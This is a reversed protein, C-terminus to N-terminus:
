VLRQTMGLPRISRMIPEYLTKLIFREQEEQSPNTRGPIYPETPVTITYGFFWRQSMQVGENAIFFEVNPYIQRKWVSAWTEDSRRLGMNDRVGVLSLLAPEETLPYCRAIVQISFGRQLKHVIRETSRVRMVKQLDHRDIFKVVQRRAAQLLSFIEDNNSQGPNM